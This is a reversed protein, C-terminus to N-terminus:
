RAVFFMAILEICNVHDHVFVVFRPISSDNSHSHQYESFAHDIDGDLKEYRKGLAHSRSLLDDINIPGPESM